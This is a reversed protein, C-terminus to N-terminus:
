QPVTKPTVWLQWGLFLFSVAGVGLAAGRMGMELLTGYLGHLVTPIAVIAMVLVVYATVYEVEQLRDQWRHIMLAVCATWVAQLAVSPLYAIWYVDPGSMGNFYSRSQLLAEVIGFAAGCALGGLFADRWFPRPRRYWVLLLLAKLLEEALAIVLTYAALAPLFGTEPNAASRYAFAVGNVIPVTFLAYPSQRLIDDSSLRTLTGVLILFAGGMVATWLARDFMPRAHAVSDASALLLGGFLLVAGAAFIWHMWTQRPLFAGQCRNDPLADFVLEISNISSEYGTMSARVAQRGNPPLTAATEEVRTQFSTRPATTLPLALPILTLVLLWPLLRRLQAHNGTPALPPATREEDLPSSALGNTAPPPPTRPRTALHNTPPVAAPQTPPPQWRPVNNSAVHNSRDGLESSTLPQPPLAPPPPPDTPDNDPDPIRLPQGCVACPMTRGALAENAHYQEGCSCTVPISM